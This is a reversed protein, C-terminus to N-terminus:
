RRHLPCLRFTAYVNSSIRSCPEDDWTFGLESALARFGQSNDDLLVFAPGSHDATRKRTEGSPNKHGLWGDDAHDTQHACESRKPEELHSCM